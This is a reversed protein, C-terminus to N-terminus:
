TAFQLIALFLVAVALLWTPARAGWPEPFPVIALIAFVLALVALIKPISM